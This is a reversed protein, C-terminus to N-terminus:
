LNSGISLQKTTNDAGSFGDGAIMAVNVESEHSGFREEALGPKAKRPKIDISYLDCRDLFASRVPLKVANAARGLLRQNQNLVITVALLVPMVDGDRLEQFLM